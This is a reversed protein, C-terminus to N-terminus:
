RDYMQKDKKQKPANAVRKKAEAAAASKADPAKKKGGAAKKKLAELAAAKTADNLEPAPAPAEKPAAEKAEKAEESKDKKKKKAKAESTVPPAYGGAAVPPVPAAVGFEALVADMDDLELKKQAALEKKTLPRPAPAKKAPAEAPERKPSPASKPSTCDGEDSESDSPEADSEQVPPVDPEEDSDSVDAWNRGKVEDTEMAVKQKEALEAKRVEEKEARRANKEIQKRIKDEDNLISFNSPM